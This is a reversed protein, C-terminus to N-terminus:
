SSPGVDRIREYVIEHIGITESFYLELWAM